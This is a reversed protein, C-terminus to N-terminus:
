IKLIAAMGFFCCFKFNEITNMSHPFGSVSAHAGSTCFGGLWNINLLYIPLSHPDDMANGSVEQFNWYIETLTIVEGQSRYCTKLSSDFRFM